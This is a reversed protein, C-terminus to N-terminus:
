RPVQTPAKGMMSRVMQITPVHGGIQISVARPDTKSPIAIVMAAPMGHQACLANFDETFAQLRAGHDATINAACAAASGHGCHLAEHAQDLRGHHLHDHAAHITSRLRNADDELEACRTALDAMTM